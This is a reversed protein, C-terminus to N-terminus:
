YGGAARRYHILLVATALLLLIICPLSAEFGFEGGNWVNMRPYGLTLVSPVELGSVRFGAMAQTFNWGFHIGAALWINRTFVYATGLFVGAALIGTFSMASSNPNLLHPISFLLGSVVIGWVNGMTDAINRLVYGRFCAEEAVAVCIFEVVLPLILGGNFDASTVKVSGTALLVALGVLILGAGLVTGQLMNRWGNVVMWGDGVAIDASKLGFGVTGLPKRDAIRCMLFTALLGGSLVSAATLLTTGGEDTVHLLSALYGTLSLGLVYLVIAILAKLLGLVGERLESSTKGM